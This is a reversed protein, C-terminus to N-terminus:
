LRFDERTPSNADSPENGPDAENGAAIGQLISEKTKLVSTPDANLFVVNKKSNGGMHTLMDMQQTVIVLSMVEHPNTGPIKNTFDLVSQELGAVIAKRQLAIGEGQLRKSEKDAEAEKVKLTYAAQANNTAAALNNLSVSINNLSEKVNKDPTIDTVLATHVRFGFETFKDELDKKVNEAIEEKKEFFNELTMLPVQARVSNTIYAAMQKQPEELKFVADEVKMRDVNFQVAITVDVFINDKTKTEVKLNLQQQRLDVRTPVNDFFAKTNIGEFAIKSVKGFRMVVAAEQKPVTFFSRYIITLLAIFAVGGVIWWVISSASSVTEGYM